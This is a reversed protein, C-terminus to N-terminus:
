LVSIILKKDSVRGGQVRTEPYLLALPFRLLMFRALRLGGRGESLSGNDKIWAQM